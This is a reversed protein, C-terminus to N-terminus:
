LNIFIVTYVNVIFIYYILLSIENNNYKVLLQNCEIVIIFKVCIFICIFTSSQLHYRLDDPNSDSLRLNPLCTWFLNVPRIQSYWDTDILVNVKLGAWFRVGLM